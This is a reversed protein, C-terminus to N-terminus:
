NALAAVGPLVLAFVTGRSTSRVLFAEGENAAALEGVIYLGLGAGSGRSARLGEHAFRTFLRETMSPDIGPGDDEVEIRVRGADHSARLSVTTRAFRDANRVLNTVMQDLQSPQVHVAVGPPADIRVEHTGTVSEAAARLADHVDVYEPHVVLQHADTGAALLLNQRMAEIRQAQREITELYRRLREAEAGSMLGATDSRSAAGAGAGPGTKAGPGPPDVSQSGLCDLTELGEQAYGLVVTLPAALDHGLMALIDSEPAPPHQADATSARAEGGAPEVPSQRSAPEAADESHPVRSM